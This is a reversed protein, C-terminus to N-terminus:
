HPHHHKRRSNEATRQYRTPKEKRIFPTINKLLTGWSQGSYRGWDWLYTQIPNERNEHSTYNLIRLSHTPTGRGLRRQVWRSKEKHNIVRWIKVHFTLLVRLTFQFKHSCFWTFICLSFRLTAKSLLRSFIYFLM